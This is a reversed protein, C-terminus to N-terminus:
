RALRYAEAVFQHVLGIDLCDDSDRVGSEVDFGLLGHLRFLTELSVLNRPTLGGAVNIRFRDRTKCGNRIGTILDSTTSLNLHTGTGGSSDLLLDTIFHSRDALKLALGILDVWGENERVTRLQVIIRVNALRDVLTPFILTDLLEPPANFQFAVFGAKAALGGVRIMQEEFQDLTDTSYHLVTMVNRQTKAAVARAHQALNPLQDVTPYRHPYRNQIGRITKASTLIGVALPWNSNSPVVALTEEIEEPTSFGAIGIYSMVSM